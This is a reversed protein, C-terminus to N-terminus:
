RRSGWANRMRRSVLIDSAAALADAELNGDDMFWRALASGGGLDVCSVWSVKILGHNMKTRKFFFTNWQKYVPVPGMQGNAASAAVPKM